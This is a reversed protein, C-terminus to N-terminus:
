CSRYKVPTESNINQQKKIKSHSGPVNISPDVHVGHGYPWYWGFMPWVLQLVQGSDFVVPTM